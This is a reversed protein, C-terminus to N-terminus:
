KAAPRLLTVVWLGKGGDIAVEELPELFAKLRRRIAAARRSEFMSVVLLGGPGLSAGYRRVTGVPDEFYYASENFVVADFAEAPVYREADAAEFRAHRSPVGRGAVVGGSRARARAVAAESLDIGVYRGYGLPRLHEELIGEGCGVDLIAGGPRLRALIGAIVSYRAMEDIQRMFEWDGHRYQAEWREKPVPADGRGTASEFRRVARELTALGPFSRGFLLRYYAVYLPKFALRLLRSRFLSM